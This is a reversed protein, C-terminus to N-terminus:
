WLRCTGSLSFLESSYDRDRLVSSVYSDVDHSAKIEDDSELMILQAASVM